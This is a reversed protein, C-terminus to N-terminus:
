SFGVRCVSPGEAPVAARVRSAYTEGAEDPDTAILVQPAMRWPLADLGGLSGSGIGLVAHREEAVWESTSLALWDTLGEAVVVGGFDSPCLTGRLWM